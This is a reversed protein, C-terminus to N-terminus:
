VLPKGKGLTALTTIDGIYIALILNARNDGNISWVYYTIVLPAILYMGVFVRQVILLGSKGARIGSSSLGASFCKTSNTETSPIVPPSAYRKANEVVADFMDAVAIALLSSLSSRIWFAIRM